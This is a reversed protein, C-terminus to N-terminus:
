SLISDLENVINDRNAKLEDIKTEVVNIKDKYDLETIGDTVGFYDMNDIFDNVKVKIIDGLFFNIADINLEHYQGAKRIVDPHKNVGIADRKRAGSSVLSLLTNKFADASRDVAYAFNDKVEQRPIPTSIINEREQLANELATEATKVQGRVENILDKIKNKGDSM